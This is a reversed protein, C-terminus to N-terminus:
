LYTGPVLYCNKAPVISGLPGPQKPTAAASFRGPIEAGKAESTRVGVVRDRLIPLMQINYEYVIIRM